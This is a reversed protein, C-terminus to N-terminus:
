NTAQFDIAFISIIYTFCLFDDKFTHHIFLFVDKFTNNTYLFDDKFTYYIPLHIDQKSYGQWKIRINLYFSLQYM